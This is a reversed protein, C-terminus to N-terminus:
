ADKDSYAEAEVLIIEDLIQQQTKAACDITITAYRQYLKRREKYLEEFSQGPKRALGRTNMDNVRTLLDSLSVDLFIIQGFHRLHQMAKDSYVASGGTAIIHNPYHTNLLVQEEIDRLALYGQTDIIDQLTKNHQLQILLDTDVFDRALMKALLIGLTSKGSGPMGILVLSTTFSNM